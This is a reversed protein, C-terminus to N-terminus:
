AGLKANAEKLLRLIDSEVKEGQKATLKGQEIMDELLYLGWSMTAVTFVGLIGGIITNLIYLIVTATFLAVFVAGKPHDEHWKLKKTVILVVVVIGFIAIFVTLPIRVSQEQQLAFKKIDVLERIGDENLRYSYYDRDIKIIDTEDILMGYKGDNYIVMGTMSANLDDTYIFYLEEYATVHVTDIDATIIYDATISFLTAMLFLYVPLPIVLTLLKVIKMKSM